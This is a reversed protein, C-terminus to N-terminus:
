QRAARDRAPDRRGRAATSADCLRAEIWWAHTFTSLCSGLRDRAVLFDQRSLCGDGDADCKDMWTEYSPAALWAEKEGLTRAYLAGLEEESICGDSDEDAVLFLCDALHRTKASIPASAQAPTQRRALEAASVGQRSAAEASDPLLLLLLLLVSLPFWWRRSSLM